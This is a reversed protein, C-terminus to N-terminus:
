TEHARLHTYSVAMSSGTAFSLHYWVSERMASFSDFIFGAAALPHSEFATPAVCDSPYGALDERPMNWVMGEVKAALWMPPVEVEM